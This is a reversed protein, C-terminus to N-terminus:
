SAAAACSTSPTSTTSRAPPSSPRTSAWATAPSPSPRSTRAGAPQTNATLNLEAEPGEWCLRSLPFGLAEDAEAFASRAAPSAEAWAKGMGVKQSGQGPFVFAARRAALPAAPGIM